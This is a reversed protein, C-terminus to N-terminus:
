NLGYEKELEFSFMRLCSISRVKIERANNKVGKHIYHHGRRIRANIKRKIREIALPSPREQRLRLAKIIQKAENITEKNETDNLLNQWEEWHSGVKVFEIFSENSLLEETTIKRKGM